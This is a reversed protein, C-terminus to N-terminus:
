YSEEVQFSNGCVNILRQVMGNCNMALLCDDISRDIEQAYQDEGHKRSHLSLGCSLESSLFLGLIIFIL